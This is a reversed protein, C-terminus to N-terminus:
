DPRSDRGVVVAANQGGFGFSCCLATDLVAPTSQRVINLDVDAQTLGTNPPLQQYRLAMLCVGLGIAGSAGLTHGTAGKTSSVFPRHPFLTNFVSAEMADNLRTATGHAHIYDIAESPQQGHQLCRRIAATAGRYGPVPSSVHYADNTLGVGLIHGYVPKDGTRASSELVLVAAGEGPALGERAGDFPYCGTRALAGMRDFGALVLPTIPAEVAGVLMRDCQGSQILQVGQAVAWLGTACAAMPALVPGLTQIRQAVRASVHHPLAQLWSSFGPTVMAGATEIAKVDLGSADPGSAGSWLAAYELALQELRGQYGRSSGIVVGMTPQPGSFGADALAEVVAPDLLNDVTARQKGVMAMPWPPLLPFPHRLAIASDGRVLRRWFTERDQGLAGTLGLGTVAVAIDSTNRIM